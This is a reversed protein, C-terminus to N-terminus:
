FQYFRVITFLSIGNLVAMVGLLFTAVKQQKENPSAIQLWGWTLGWTSPIIGPFAYRAVPM